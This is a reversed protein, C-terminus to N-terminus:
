DSDTLHLLAIQCYLGVIFLLACPQQEVSCASHEFITFVGSLGCSFQVKNNASLQKHQFKCAVLVVYGVSIEAVKCVLLRWFLHTRLLM